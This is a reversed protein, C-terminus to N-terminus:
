VNLEISRKIFTEDILSELLPSDKLELVQSSQFYKELAQLIITSNNIQEVFLSLRQMAPYTQGKFLYCVSFKDIPEMLITDEGFKARDLGKSFIEGSFATFATLFGSIVDEEYLFDEVFKHSFLLAGGEAIILLLTPQEDLLEPPEITRKGQLRDIVGDVSALEIRESISADEENLSEWAKSQELLNDHESSIKRALMQLGHVEAIRQAETLLLKANEIKMEILYLKAQLLKVEALWSFSNQSEAIKILQLILQQIEGLVEPNNYILLEGVLLECLSVLSLVHYDPFIIDDRTILKLLKEAEAHDHIRNGAILVKAKGLQYAHKTIKNDLKNSIQELQTLYKKSEAMSNQDLNIILLYLLPYAMGHPIKNFTFYTLSQKLYEIAMEFEGLLRYIMGMELMYSGYASSNTLINREAKKLYELAKNPEGKERYISSLIIVNGFKMFDSIEKFTLFQNEFKLAQDVEGMFFYAAVVAYLSFAIGDQFNLDKFLELGKFACELGLQAKGEHPFIMGLQTLVPAIDFKKETKEAVRLGELALDISVNSEGKYFHVWAKAVLIQLRLRFLTSESDLSISNLLEEAQLIYELSEDFKAFNYILAKLLLAEISELVKGQEQSMPFALEGVNIAEKIQIKSSYIRGRLLLASLQDKPKLSSKKEFATIIEFAEEVKGSYM